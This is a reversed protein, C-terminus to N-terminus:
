PKFGDALTVMPGRYKKLFDITYGPFTLVNFIEAYESREEATMIRTSPDADANDFNMLMEAAEAKYTAWQWAYFAGVPNGKLLAVFDRNDLQKANLSKVPQREVFEAIPRAAATISSHLWLLKMQQAAFCQLPAHVTFHAPGGPLVYAPKTIIELPIYRQISREDISIGLVKLRSLLMPYTLETM